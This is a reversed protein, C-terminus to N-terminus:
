TYVGCIHVDGHKYHNQTYDKSIIDNHPVACNCVNSANIRVVSYEVFIFYFLHLIKIYLGISRLYIRANQSTVSLIIFFFIHALMFLFPVICFHYLIRLFFFVLAFLANDKNLYKTTTQGSGMTHFSNQEYIRSSTSTCFQLYWYSASTRPNRQKNIWVM